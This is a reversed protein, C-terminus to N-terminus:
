DPEGPAKGTGRVRVVRMVHGLVDFWFPAGVSVALVTILLGVIKLLWEGGSSPVARSDDQNNGSAIWGFTFRSEGIAEALSDFDGMGAEGTDSLATARAVLAERAASDTQLHNWLKLTDANIVTVLLMAIILTISQIRRKYWGSVRDM